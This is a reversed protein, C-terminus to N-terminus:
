TTVFWADQGQELRLITTQYLESLYASTCVTAVTGARWQGDGFLLLVHTCYRAHNPDHSVMLITHGTATHQKLLSLTQKQHHLDLQSLPEDLLLLPAQQMLTTALSVRRQEGGSLTSVDRLFLHNLDLHQLWMHAQLHDDASEWTLAGLRTHCGTLVHELVSTSFPPQDHQPMWALLKARERAPYQLLPKGQLAIMGKTPRHWGALTALLTSKGCGNQGL